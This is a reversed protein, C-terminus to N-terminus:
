SLYLGTICIHGGRGMGSVRLCRAGQRAWGSSSRRRRLIYERLSFLVSKLGYGAISDLVSGRSVATWVGGAITGWFLIYLIMGANQM